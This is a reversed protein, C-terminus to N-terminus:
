KISQKIAKYVSLVMRKPQKTKMIFIHTHFRILVDM